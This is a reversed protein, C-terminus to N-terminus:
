IKAGDNLKASLHFKDKGSTNNRTVPSRFQSQSFIESSEMNQILSSANGSEGQIQLENNKMVLRTLWTGDPIIRTVEHLLEISTLSNKFKNELFNTQEIITHKEDKLKKLQIATKRNIQVQNELTEIQEAQKLIPVYLFAFFLAFACVALFASVSDVNNYTRKKQQLMNITSEDPHEVVPRIVDVSINWGNLLTLLPDINNKPAVYIEIYLKEAQKDNDTIRYDYYVQDANFPTKRNLEFGLAERLNARAAPPFSLSKKLIMNEPVVLVTNTNHQREGMWKLVSARQIDDSQEFYKIALPKVSDVSFHKVTVRKNNFEVTIKDPALGISRKLSPPCFFALGKLWWDIAQRIADFVNM